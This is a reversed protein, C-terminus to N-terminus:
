KWVIEISEYRTTGINKLSHTRKEAHWNFVGPQFEVIQEPQGPSDDALKAATITVGVRALSHTHIGTSQGPELVFREVRVKDNELIVSHGPVDKL